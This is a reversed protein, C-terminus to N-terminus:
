ISIQYLNIAQKINKLRFRGAKVVTYSIKSRVAHYVNESIFLKGAIAIQQIRFAINVADGKLGGDTEIVDGLHIGIRILIKEKADKKKNYAKFKRQVEVGCEVADVASEFSILYADGIIEVVKGAFRASTENMLKNHVELLHLALTENRNMMKSYNKIDTFMLSLLHRRYRLAQGTKKQRVGVIKRGRRLLSHVRALLERTDFPKTVYDDAGIELGMVKDIQETRSTLMMIPNKFGKRRLQRCVEFGNLDPLILDLLILDPRKEKSLKLGQKGDHSTLVTYNESALLNELGKVIAPDDEIILIKKM